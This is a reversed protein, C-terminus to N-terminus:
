EKFFAKLYSYILKLCKKCYYQSESKSLMNFIQFSEIKLVVKRGCFCKKHKEVGFFVVPYVAAVSSKNKKKM